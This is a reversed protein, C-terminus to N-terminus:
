KQCTPNPDEPVVKWFNNSALLDIKEELTKATDPHAYAAPQTEWAKKYSSSANKFTVAGSPFLSQLVTLGCEQM